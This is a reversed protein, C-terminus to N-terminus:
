TYKSTGRNSSVGLAPAMPREDVVSPTDVLTDRIKSVRRRVEHASFENTDVSCESLFADLLKVCEAVQKAHLRESFFVDNSVSVFEDGREEAEHVITRASDSDVISSTRGDKDATLVEHLTDRCLERAKKAWTSASSTSLVFVTGSHKLRQGSNTEFVASEGGTDATRVEAMEVYAQNGVCVCELTNNSNYGYGVDYVIDTSEFLSEFSLMSEQIDSSDDTDATAQPSDTDAREVDGAREIDVTSSVPESPPRALEVDVNTHRRHVLGTYDDVVGNLQYAVPSSLESSKSHENGM